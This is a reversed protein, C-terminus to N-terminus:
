VSQARHNLYDFSSYLISKDTKTQKQKQKITMKTYDIRINTKRRLHETSNSDNKLLQKICSGSSRRDAEARREWLKMRLCTSDPRIDRESGGVREPMVAWVVVLSGAYTTSTNSRITRHYDVFSHILDIVRSKKNERHEIHRESHRERM